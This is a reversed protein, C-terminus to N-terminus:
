CRLPPRWAWACSPRRPRALWRAMIVAILLFAYVVLRGPQASSLLPLVAALRWPLIHAGFM